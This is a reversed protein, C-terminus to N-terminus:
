TTYDANLTVYEPTMDCGFATAQGDGLGLDLDITVVPTKMAASVAAADFSAALGGAVLRQGNIALGIRSEELRVSTNGLAMFVRGWNPDNGYVACKVLNSAAIAKAAQSADDQSAAGRVCVEITKSAGEGDAAMQRALALAVHEIAQGLLEAEPTGAKVPPNGAAGNSLVVLTDNTSTDADVTLMNFSRGAAQRIAGPLVDPAVAADCTIFCLMTAMNPHIMGAGKSVGGLRVERGALEVAASAQKRRTDTTMIADNFDDASGDLRLNRIGDRLRDMPLPVGIVGTSAVLVQRQEVGLTSAALAAMEAADRAGQEGTCANANGSNVVVARLNGAPLLQQCWRVPAARLQNKTFVGAAACDSDSVLLGLDLRGPGSGKVNASGAAARWGQPALLGGSIDRIM